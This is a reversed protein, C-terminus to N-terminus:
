YRKKNRERLKMGDLEGAIKRQPRRRCREGERGYKSRVENERL